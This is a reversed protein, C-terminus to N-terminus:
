LYSDADELLQYPDSDMNYWCRLVSAEQLYQMAKIKRSYKYIDTSSYRSSTVLSNLVEGPLMNIATDYGEILDPRHEELLARFDPYVTKDIMSTAYYPTVKGDVPNVYLHNYYDIDVICGHVSGIGGLSRVFSSYRKQYETFLKLPKLIMEVESNMNDFYYEPNHDVSKPVGGNLMVYGNAGKRMFMYIGKRKIMIVSKGITYQMQIDKGVAFDKYQEATIEYIGEQYDAFIDYTGNFLYRNLSFRRNKYGVQNDALIRGTDDNQYYNRHNHGHFYAWKPNLEKKTWDKPPMHTAIVVNEKSGLADYIKLYLKEFKSSETIEQDRTLADRYIGNNANFDENLGAFGIGGFFVARSTTAIKRIEEISAEMLWNSDYEKSKKNFVTGGYVYMSNNLLVIDINNFFAKYEDIRKQYDDYWLEHNGLVVIIDGSVRRRLLKYFVKNLSFSFSVDGVILLPSYFFENRSETKPSIMQEIKKELYKVIQGDNTYRNLLKHDLHLDSIYYVCYRSFQEDRYITPILEKNKLLTVSRNKLERIIVDTVPKKEKQKQPDDFIANTLDYNDLKVRSFNFGIYNGGSLDNKMAKAFDTFTSFFEDYKTILKDGGFLGYTVRFRNFIKLYVKDIIREDVPISGRLRSSDERKVYAGTFDYKEAKKPVTVYYLHKGILNEGCAEYYDGFSKFQRSFVFRNEGTEPYHIVTDEEYSHWNQTLPRTRMELNTGRLFPAQDKIKAPYYKEGDNGFFFYLMRCAGKDFLNTPIKKIIDEDKLSFLGYLIYNLNGFSRLYLSVEHKNKLGQMNYAIENFDMM